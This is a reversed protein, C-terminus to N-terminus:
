HPGAQQRTIEYIGSWDNEEMIRNAALVEQAVSRKDVYADSSGLGLNRARAERITILREVNVRLGVVKKAPLKM